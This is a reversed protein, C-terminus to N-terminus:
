RISSKVACITRSGVSAVYWCSTVCGALMSITSRVSIMATATVIAQAMMASGM